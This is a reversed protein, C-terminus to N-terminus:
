ITILRSGSKLWETLFEGTYFVKVGIEELKEVIGMNEACRRCAIVDVGASQIEAIKGKLESDNVLLGGSAGWILLTVKEWWGKIKSNLTYMCVMNMAVTRDGSAWLVLLREQM